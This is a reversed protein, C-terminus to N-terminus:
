FSSLLELVVSSLSHFSVCRFTNEWSFARKARRGARFKKCTGGLTSLVLCCARKYVPLSSQRVDVEWDGETVKCLGSASARWLPLGISARATWAQRRPLVRASCSPAVLRGARCAWQCMCPNWWRRRRRRLTRPPLLPMRPNSCWLTPPARLTQLLNALTKAAPPLSTLPLSSFFIPKVGVHM